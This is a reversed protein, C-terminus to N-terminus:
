EVVIKRNFMGEGTVVKVFYIGKAQASLDIKEEENKISTKEFVCNGLLDYVCIRLNSTPHQTNSHITFIGSSPNPTISIASQPNPISSLVNTPINSRNIKALYYAGGSALFTTTTGFEASDNFTGSVFINNYYDHSINKGWNSVTSPLSWNLNNYPNFEWIFTGGIWPYNDYAGTLWISDNNDMTISECEADYAPINHTWIINGSNDFKDLDFGNYRQWLSLYFNGNNDVTLNQHPEYYNSGLNVAWQITGASNFKAVFHSGMCNYCGYQIIGNGFDLGATDLPEGLLYINGTTDASVEWADGGPHHILLENTGNLDFRAIFLEPQSFATGEIVAGTCSKGCIIVRQNKTLYIDGFGPFGTGFYDYAGYIKYWLLAGSSDIKCFLIDRTGISTFNITDFILHSFHGLLYLNGSNDAVMGYSTLDGSFQKQWQFIGNSNFKKITSDHITFVNGISDVALKSVNEQIAWEWQQAVASLSLEVLVIVLIKKM